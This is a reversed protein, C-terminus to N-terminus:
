GGFRLLLKLKDLLELAKEKNLYIIIVITVLFLLVLIWSKIDEWILQGKKNM